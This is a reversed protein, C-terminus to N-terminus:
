FSVGYQDIVKKRFKKTNALKIFEILPGVHRAYTVEDWDRNQLKKEYHKFKWRFRRKSQPSLNIHDPFIRYGLFPVGFSCRNLQKAKNLKLTLKLKLFSEIEKLENKLFKRDNGFVIFDDMYRIYARCRREEKTWHDFLGMYFNALHQSVLNGIPLGKQPKTEYTKLIQQFLFFLKKEKFRRELTQIIIHHDISDFYRHIDLKLYWSYNGSFRKARAVAKHVGKGKRCAFSDSIAYADLVPECINMIAHHFVREPFSAACIFRKKPDQVFFFRYNGINFEQSIIQRKLSDLNKHLDNRYEIVEKRGHKGKAAKWFALNLNEYESILHYINGVRKM